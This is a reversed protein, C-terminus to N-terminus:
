ARAPLRIQVFAFEGPEEPAFGVFLNVFGAAVDAKTTTLADCRIVYAGAPHTGAFAGREHLLALFDTVQERIRSWLAPGNTESGVWRLGQRISAEIFLATRRVPLHSWRAAGPVTEILTRDGELAPGLTNVLRMTNIGTGSLDHREPANMECELGAGHVIADNGVASKWVGATEDRRALVGAVAGSSPIPRPRGGNLPDPVM